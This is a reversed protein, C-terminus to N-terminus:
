NELQSQEQISEIETESDADVVEQIADVVDDAPINPKDALWQLGEIIYKPPQWTTHELAYKLAFEAKKKDSPSKSSASEEVENENTGTVGFHDRNALIL